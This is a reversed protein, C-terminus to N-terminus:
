VQYRSTGEFKANSFSVGRLGHTFFLVTIDKLLSNKFLIVQKFSFREYWSVKARFLVLEECEEVDPSSHHSDLYNM